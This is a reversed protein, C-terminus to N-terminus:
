HHGRGADVEVVEITAIYLMGVEVYVMCVPFGIHGYVQSLQQGLRFGSRERVARNNLVGGGRLVGNM